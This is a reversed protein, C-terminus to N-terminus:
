TVFIAIMLASGVIGFHGHMALTSDGSIRCLQRYSYASALLHGVGIDEEYTAVPLLRDEALGESIYEVSSALLTGAIEEKYGAV